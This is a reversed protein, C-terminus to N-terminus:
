SVFSNSLKVIRKGAGGAMMLYGALVFFPVALLPFSESTVEIRQLIIELPFGGAFIFYFVSVLGTAFFLPVGTFIFGFFLIVTISLIIM